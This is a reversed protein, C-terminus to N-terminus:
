SSTHVLIRGNKNLLVEFNIKLLRSADGQLSFKEERGTGVGDERQRVLSRAGRRDRVNLLLPANGLGVVVVGALIEVYALVVAARGSSKKESRFRHFVHPM